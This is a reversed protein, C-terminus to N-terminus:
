ERARALSGRRLQEILDALINLSEQKVPDYRGDSKPEASEEDGDESDANDTRSASPDAARRTAARAKAKEAEDVKVLTLSPKEVDELALKYAVPDVRKSALRAAKREETRAKEAKVEAERAAKNLSLTNAAIREKMRETDELLFRFELDTAVRAASRTKLEGVDLPRGSWKEYEAPRVEDYPLPRKLSDEGVQLASYPSPLVIDSECGKLQTSGGSIRYFKQITLKLSGADPQKFGFPSMFRGVELVTQVTGKGFTNKDGVIVARNYDQLAAAFIESASASLHSTLVVLPGTYAVRGNDRDSMVQVQKNADKSQVVPGRKIFLGTLNIAEELSGGGNRRLDIVLGAIGERQMRGLLAEVDRTTSKAGKGRSTMDAYFSPLTLFGLKQPEGEPGKVEIIEAKAQQETLKVEDRVIEIIKRAGGKSDAPLVQLRVLTGKKGRIMEVVKDLRMDITDVFKADKGQAVGTIRDNVKLQGDMQAPGGPILESIKAYGDESRLLAGIGVLSLKMNINFNEMEAPSLYESHPDYTLALSNLFFKTVDDKTQEGLSRLLRDYRRTVIQVPTETAKDNLSEALLEGEIRSLWLQDADGEDKPWSSKSRNIETTRNSSFDFKQKKLIDKVKAVRDQVRKKYIDYIATAPQLNGLMLEDALVAGYRKEFESIDKQTFFLHNYDLTETYTKLLQRSMSQDLAQRTYHGQELLKGVAIAIQGPDTEARAPFSCASLAVLAFLGGSLTRFFRDTSLSIM